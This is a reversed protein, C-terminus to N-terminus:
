GILLQFTSMQKYSLQTLGHIETSLHKINTIDLYMCIHMFM